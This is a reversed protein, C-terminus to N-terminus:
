ARWRCQYSVGWGDLLACVVPRSLRARVRATDAGVQLASMILALDVTEFVLLREYLAADAVLWARARARLEDAADIRPWSARAKRAEAAETLEPAAGDALPRATAGAHPELANAARQRRM